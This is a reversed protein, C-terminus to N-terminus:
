VRLYGKGTEILLRTYTYIHIFFRKYLNIFVYSYIYCVYIAHIYIYMYMYVYRGEATLGKVKHKDKEAKIKIKEQLKHADFEELTKFGLDIIYVPKFICIFMHIYIFM